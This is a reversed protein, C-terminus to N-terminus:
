MRATLALIRESEPPGQETDLQMGSHESEDKEAALQM